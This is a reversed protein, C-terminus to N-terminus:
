AVFDGARHVGCAPVAGFYFWGFWWRSTRLECERIGARWLAADDSQLCDYDPDSRERHDPHHHGLEDISLLHHTRRQFFGTRGPRGPRIRNWKAPTRFLEHSIGCGWRAGGM